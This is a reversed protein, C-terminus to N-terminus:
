AFGPDDQSEAAPPISKFVLPLKLDHIVRAVIRERNWEGAKALEVIKTALMFATGDTPDPLDVAALVDHYAAALLESDEPSFSTDRLLAIPNV